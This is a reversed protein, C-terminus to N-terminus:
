TAVPAAPVPDDAALARFGGPGPARVITAVVAYVAAAVAAALPWPAVAWIAFGSGGAA